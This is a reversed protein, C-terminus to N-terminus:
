GVSLVDNIRFAVTPQFFISSLKVEQIIYRGPWDDAWKLGNGFPTYVGLGISVPSKDVVPGGVYASVTPFVQDQSNAEYSGAPVQVYKVSPIVVQGSAYARVNTFETLAGPNYFVISADWPIATGSGGMALQRLGQLNLQYGAGFTVASSLLLT